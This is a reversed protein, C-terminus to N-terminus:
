QKTQNYLCPIRRPLATILIRALLLNAPSEYARASLKFARDYLRDACEGKRM